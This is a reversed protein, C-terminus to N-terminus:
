KDVKNKKFKKIKKNLTDIFPKAFKIGYFGAYGILGIKIIDGAKNGFINDIMGFLQGILGQDPPSIDTVGGSTCIITADAHSKGGDMQKEICEMQAEYLDVQGGHTRIIWTAGLISAVSAVSGAIWPILLPLFGLGQKQEPTISQGVLEQIKSELFFQQGLLSKLKPQLSLAIDPYKERIRTLTMNAKELKTRSNQLAVIMEQM